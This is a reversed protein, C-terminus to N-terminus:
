EEKLLMTVAEMDPVQLEAAEAKQLDELFVDKLPTGQYAKGKWEQYISIAKSKKGLLLQALALYSYNWGVEADVEIGTKALRLAKTFKRNLLYYWATNGYASALNQKLEQNTPFTESLEKLIMTYSDLFYTASDLIGMEGYTMGVFQLATGFQQKVKPNDPFAESLAGAVEKQQTFYYISSDLNGLIGYSYGINQYAISLDSKYKLTEPSLDVLEATIKLQEFFQPKASDEKGQYSYTNGVNQYAIGLSEKFETNDPFKMSYSKYLDKQKQFYKMASDLQMSRMYNLGVKHYAMGLLGAFDVNYPQEQFLAESLKKFALVYYNISDGQGYLRYNESLQQYNIAQLHKVELDTPSEQYLRTIIQQSQQFYNMSSDLQGAHYWGIGVKNLAQAFDFKVLKNEPNERFLKKSIDLGKQYYLLTSDLQGLALHFDGFKEFTLSYTLQVYVYDNGLPLNKITDFTSSFYHYNIQANKLDGVKMNLDGLASYALTKHRYAIEPHELIKQYLKEAKQYHHNLKFFEAADLLIALSQDDLRLLQEYQLAADEIRFNLTYLEALLYIQEIQGQKIKELKRQEQKLVSMEMKLREEEQIIQETRQDLNVGELKKIAMEIKGAKFLGLAERYLNSVDDFNIRAFKEALQGLERKQHDYKEQLRQLEEFYKDQLIQSERYKRTLNLKAHKFHKVLAEDSVDYYEKRAADVTGEKALIIDVGLSDNNSIKLIDFDKVNVLEFGKKHIKEMFILEGPRKGQFALSFRGDGDSVESKADAFVIQAGSVPKRDSNLERVLGTQIKIQAFSSHVILFFFSFPIFFKM